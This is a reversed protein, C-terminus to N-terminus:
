GPPASVYQKADELRVRVWAAGVVMLTFTVWLWVLIALVGVGPGLEVARRVVFTGVLAMAETWAAILVGIVIAPLGIVERTVPVTPVFRYAAYLTAIWVGVVLLPAAVFAIVDFVVDLGLFGIDSMRTTMGTLFLMVTVLALLMFISIMGRWIRVLASRRAYGSFVRAFAEDIARYFTSAGWLSGLGAILSANMRGELRADMASAAIGALPPFVDGIADAIARRGAEEPVLLSVLGTTLLLAPLLAFVAAFTLGGSLLDGGAANWIPSIRMALRGLKTDAAWEMTEYASDTLGKREPRADGPRRPAPDPTM